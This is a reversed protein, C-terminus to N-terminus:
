SSTKRLSLFILCVREHKTSSSPCVKHTCRLVATCLLTKDTLCHQWLISKVTNELIRARTRLLLLVALWLWSNKKKELLRWKCGVHVQRGLLRHEKAFGNNDPLNCHTQRKPTPSNYKNLVRDSPSGLQGTLHEARCWLFLFLKKLERLLFLSM